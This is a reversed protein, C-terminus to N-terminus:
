FKYGVGLSLFFSDWSVAKGIKEKLASPSVLIKAEATRPGVCFVVITVATIALSLFRKM